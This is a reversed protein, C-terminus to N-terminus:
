RCLHLRRKYHARRSRDRIHTQDVSRNVKVKLFNNIGQLELAMGAMGFALFSTLDFYPHRLAEQLVAHYRLENEYFYNFLAYFGHGNYGRQFLIAASILRPVRGNGDDFPHIATFFFHAVLAHIAPPMSILLPGNVFQLYQRMLAPLRAAPAGAHYGVEATGVVVVVGGQRFTGASDYRIGSEEAAMRHMTFVDELSPPPAGPTFRRRVWAQARSANTILLQMKRLAIQDLLDTEAPTDPLAETELVPRERWQPPRIRTSAAARCAEIAAIHPLLQAVDVRFNFEFAPWYLTM